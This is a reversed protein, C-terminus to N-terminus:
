NGSQRLPEAIRLVNGDPDKIAFGRFRVGHGYDRNALSECVSDRAKSVAREWVPEVASVAVFARGGGPQFGTHDSLSLHIYVEDRFVVAYRVPDGDLYDLGFGLVNRYFSAARSVDRVAFQPGIHNFRPRGNM